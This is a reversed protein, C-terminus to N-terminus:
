HPNRELWAEDNAPHGFACGGLASSHCSRGAGEASATRGRRYVAHTLRTLCHLMASTAAPSEAWSVLSHPEKSAQPASARTNVFSSLGNVIRHRGSGTDSWIRAKIDEGRRYVIWHRKRPRQGLHKAGGIDRRDQYAQAIRVLAANDVPNPRRRGAHLACTRRKKDLAPGADDGATAGVAGM